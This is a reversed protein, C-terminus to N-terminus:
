KVVYLKLQEHTLEKILKIWIYEAIDFNSCGTIAEIGKFGKFNTKEPLNNSALAGLQSNTVWPPNGIVLLRGSDNWNLTKQLDLDFINAQQVNINTTFDPKTIQKATQFYTWDLEIAQIERVTTNFALLGAIFNGKGCTPELVRKWNEESVNLCKLVDAVLAPPTQFDGFEKAL